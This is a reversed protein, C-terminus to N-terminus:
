SRSRLRFWTQLIRVPDEEAGYFSTFRAQTPKRVLPQGVTRKVNLTQMVSLTEQGKEEEQQSSRCSVSLIGPFVITSGEFKIRCLSRRCYVPFCRCHLLLNRLSLLNSRSVFADDFSDWSPSSPSPVSKNSRSSLTASKFTESRYTSYESGSEEDGEFRDLERKIGEVVNHAKELRDLLQRRSKALQKIRTM